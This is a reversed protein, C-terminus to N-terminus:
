EKFRYLPTYNINVSKIVLSLGYLGFTYNIVNNAHTLHVHASGINGDRLIKAEGFIFSNGLLKTKFVFNIPYKSIKGTKTYPYCEVRTNAMSDKHMPCPYDFDLESLRNVINIDPLGTIYTNSDLIMNNLQLLYEQAIEQNNMNLIFWAIGNTHNLENVWSWGFPIGEFQQMDAITFSDCQEKRLADEREKQLQKINYQKDQIIEKDSKFVIGNARYENVKDIAAVYIARNRHASCLAQELLITDIGYQKKNITFLVKSLPICKIDSPNDIDYKIGDISYYRPM